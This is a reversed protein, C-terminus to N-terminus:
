DNLTELRILLGTNSDTLLYVVDNKSDTHVDRIRGFEGQFLQKEATVTNDTITLKSLLQYALAGILVDGQYFDMGSPAISPNWYHLPQELGERETGVGIKSGTGYEAGYTILPWGYNKGAEIINVEDGGQPGHEHAWIQGTEPNLAMGQVNRHGYSFIEPRAGKTNIFPNDEPIRGDDHLRVISGIHSGLNQSEERIGRDGLSIYLYGNKDFALRSGFHRGGNTKPLAKFIPTVTELRLTQLNLQGRVVQTNIKKFPRNLTDTAVFSLYVWGNKEFNPHLIVDLLGGQGRVSIEPLGQIPPSVEGKETVVHLDGERETVLFGGEPLTVMGWPRDLQDTIVSPKFSKANISFACTLLAMAFLFFQATKKM